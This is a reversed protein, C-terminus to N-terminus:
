SRSSNAIGALVLAGGIWQAVTLAIGFLVWSVFATVLPIVLLHVSSRSIAGSQMGRNVALFAVTTAMLGLWIVAGATIVTPPAPAPGDVSTFLLLVPVALAFTYFTLTQSSVGMAERWRRGLLIYAAFSIAALLALADGPLTTSAFLQLLQGKSIILYAGALAMLLSAVDRRRVEEGLLFGSASLMAPYTTILFAVNVPTSLNVAVTQIPWFLGSGALALVFLRVWTTWPFQWVLDGQAALWGGLSAAGILGRWFAIDWPTFTRLGIEIAPFATGWILGAVLPLWPVIRHRRM